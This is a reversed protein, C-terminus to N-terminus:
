LLEARTLRTAFVLMVGGVGETMEGRLLCVVRRTWKDGHDIIGSCMLGGRTLEEFGQAVM